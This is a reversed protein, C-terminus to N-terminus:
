IDTYSIYIYIYIYILICIYMYTGINALLSERLDLSRLNLEAACDIDFRFDDEIDNYGTVFEDFQEQRDDLRILIASVTDHLGRYM